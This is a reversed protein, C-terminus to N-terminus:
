KFGLGDGHTRRHIKRHIHKGTEIAQAEIWQCTTYSFKTDGGYFVKESSNLIHKFKGGLCIISTKGGTCREEKLHVPLDENQTFIQRCCKCEWRKCLVDMKKSCPCYGGLLGM